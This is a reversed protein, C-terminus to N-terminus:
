MNLVSFSKRHVTLKNAGGPEVIVISQRLDRIKFSAVPLSGNIVM